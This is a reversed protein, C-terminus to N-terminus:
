RTRSEGWKGGFETPTNTTCLTAEAPSPPAACPRPVHDVSFFCTRSCCLSMSPPIFSLSALPLTTAKDRRQNNSFACVCMFTNTGVTGQKRNHLTCGFSLWPSSSVRCAAAEYLSSTSTALPHRETPLSSCLRSPPHPTMFLPSPCAHNKGWVWTTNLSQGFQKHAPPRKSRRSTLELSRRSTRTHTEKKHGHTCTHGRRSTATDCVCM